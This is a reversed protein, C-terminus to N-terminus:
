KAWSHWWSILLCQQGTSNVTICCFGKWTRGDTKEKSPKCCCFSSDSHPQSPEETSHCALSQHCRPCRAWWALLHTIIWAKARAEVIVSICFTVKRAILKCSQLFGPFCSIRFTNTLLKCIQHLFALALQTCQEEQKVLAVTTRTFRMEKKKKWSIHDLQSTLFFNKVWLACAAWLPMCPKLIGELWAKTAGWFHAPRPVPRLQLCSAAFILCAANRHM